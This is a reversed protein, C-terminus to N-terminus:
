DGPTNPQAPPNIPPLPVRPALVGKAVLFEYEDNCEQPFPLKNILFAICNQSEAAIERNRITVQQCDTPPKDPEPLSLCFELLDAIEKIGKSTDVAQKALERSQLAFEQAKKANSVASFSNVIGLVSAITTTALFFVLGFVLIRKLIASTRDVKELAIDVVEDTVLHETM